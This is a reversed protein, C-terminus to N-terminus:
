RSGNPLLVALAANLAQLAETSGGRDPHRQMALERYRRKIAAATVPESLGLEALAGARGGVDVGRAGRWFGALLAQVDTENLALRSLDLYYLRLPDVAQVARARAPAAPRLRICRCDIDLTEDPALTDRLRYLVHFLMFHARFLGLSTGRAEREFGPTGAEGLRRLLEAEKVGGPHARLTQQVRPALAAYLQAGLAQADAARPTETM